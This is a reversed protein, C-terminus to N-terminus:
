EETKPEADTDAIATGDMNQTAIDSPNDAFLGQQTVIQEPIDLTAGYLIFEGNYQAKFLVKMLDYDEEAIDKGDSIKLLAFTLKENFKKYYDLGTLEKLETTM